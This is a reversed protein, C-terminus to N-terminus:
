VNGNGVRREELKREVKETLVGQILIWATESYGEHIASCFSRVSENTIPTTSGSGKKYERKQLVSNVFSTAKNYLAKNTRAKRILDELTTKEGSNALSYFAVIEQFFVAGPYTM